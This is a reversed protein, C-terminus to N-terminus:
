TEKVQLNLTSLNDKDHYEDHVQILSKQREVLIPSINSEGRNTSPLSTRSNKIEDQTM